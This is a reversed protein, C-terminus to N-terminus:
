ARGGKRGGKLLSRFLSGLASGIGQYGKREGEGDDVLVTFALAEVAIKPRGAEQWARQLDDTTVVESLTAKAIELALDELKRPTVDMNLIENSGWTVRDGNLAKRQIWSRVVALHKGGNEPDFM